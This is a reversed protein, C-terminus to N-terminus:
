LFYKKIHNIGYTSILPTEYRNDAVKFFVANRWNDLPENYENLVNKERLLKFLNKQGLGKCNIIKAAESFTYFKMEGVIDDLNSSLKSFDMM